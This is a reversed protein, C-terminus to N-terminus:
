AFAGRIPTLSLAIPPQALGAMGLKAAVRGSAGTMLSVDSNSARFGSFAPPQFAGLAPLPQATASQGSLIQLALMRGSLGHCLGDDALGAQVAERTRGAANAARTELESRWERPLEHRLIAVTGIGIGASGHCWATAPANLPRYRRDIWDQGDMCCLDEFQISRRALDLIPPESQAAAVLALAAGTGGHALGALANSRRGTRLRWRTTGSQPDSEHMQALRRVLGEVADDLPRGVMAFTCTLAIIAGSIGGILDWNRASGLSTMALSSLTMELSEAAIDAIEPHQSVLAAEALAATTGPQGTHFGLSALEPQRTLMTRAVAPLLKAVHADATSAMAHALVWLPGALGGYVDAGLTRCVAGDRYLWTARADATLAERTLRGTFEHLETLAVTAEPHERVHSEAVVSESGATPSRTSRPPRNLRHRALPRHIRTSPVLREIPPLRINETSLRQGDRMARIAQDAILACTAMGFSEGNAPSPALAIGDIVRSTFLPTSPRHVASELMDVLVSLLDLSPIEPLYVVTSDARTLHDSTALFKASSGPIERSLLHALPSVVSFLPEPATNAYLRYAPRARTVDGHRLVLWGPMAATSLPPLPIDVDRGLPGYDEGLTVVPQGTLGVRSSSLAQWGGWFARVPDSGSVEPHELRAARDARRLCDGLDMWREDPAAPEQPERPTPAGLTYAWQYLVLALEQAARESRLSCVKGGFWTVTRRQGHSRLEIAPLVM